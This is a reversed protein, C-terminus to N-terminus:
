HEGPAPDACAAEVEPGVCDDLFTVDRVYTTCCILDVHAKHQVLSLNLYHNM